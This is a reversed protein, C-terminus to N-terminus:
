NQWSSASGIKLMKISLYQYLLLRGCKLSSLVQVRLVQNSCIFGKRKNPKSLELSNNKLTTIEERATQSFLESASFHYVPLTTWGSFWFLVGTHKWRNEWSSRTKTIFPHSTLPPMVTPQHPTLARISDVDCTRAIITNLRFANNRFITNYSLLNM